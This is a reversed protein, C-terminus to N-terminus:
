RYKLNEIDKKPKLYRPQMTRHYWIPHHKTFYNELNKKGEEWFIHFYNERIKGRLLYFRMYILISIKQKYTVNVISNGATNDTELLTPMQPNGMESISTSISTAKQFNEFVGGLEAETALEM